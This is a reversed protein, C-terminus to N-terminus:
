RDLRLDLLQTWSKTWERELQGNTWGLHCSFNNPYEEMAVMNLTMWFYCSYELGRSSEATWVFTLSNLGVKPGSVNLNDM